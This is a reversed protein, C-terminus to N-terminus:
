TFPELDFAFQSAFDTNHCHCHYGKDTRYSIWRLRLHMRWTAALHARSRSRMPRICLSIRTQRLCFTTQPEGHPRNPLLSGARSRIPWVAFECTTAPSTVLQYTMQDLRPLGLVIIGQM